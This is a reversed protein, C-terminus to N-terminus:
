DDELWLFESRSAVLGYRGNGCGAYESSYHVYGLGMRHSIRIDRGPHRYSQHEASLYYTSPKGDQGVSERYSATDTNTVGNFQRLFEVMVKRGVPGMKHFDAPIYKGGHQSSTGNWLRQIETATIFLPDFKKSFQEFTAFAKTKDVLGDIVPEYRDILAVPFPYGRRGGRKITYCLTSGHLFFGSFVHVVGENSSLHQWAGTYGSAVESASLAVKHKRQVTQIKIPAKFWIRVKWFRSLEILNTQVDERGKLIAEIVASRDADLDVLLGLSQPIPVMPVVPVVPIVPVVM